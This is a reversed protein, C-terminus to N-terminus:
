LRMQSRIVLPHLKAGKFTKFISKVTDQQENVNKIQEKEVKSEGKGNWDSMVKEVKEVTENDLELDIVQEVLAKSSFIETNKIRNFIRQAWLASAGFKKPNTSCCLKLITRSLM